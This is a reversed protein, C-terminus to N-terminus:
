AAIRLQEAPAERVPALANDHAVIRIVSRAPGEVDFPGAERDGGAGGYSKRMHVITVQGDDKYVGAKMMADLARRLCKDVDPRTGPRLTASSSLMHSNRGTRYHAQPRDFVFEAFVEFVGEIPVTIGAAKVADRAAFIATSDWAPGGKANDRLNVMPAGGPRRVLSGDGRTIVIPDWSGKAIPPGPVTFELETM